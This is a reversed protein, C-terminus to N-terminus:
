SRVGNIASCGMADRHFRLFHVIWCTYSAETRPSYHKTRCVQRVQELLKMATPHRAMIRIDYTLSFSIIPYYPHTGAM